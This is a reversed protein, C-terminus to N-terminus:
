RSPGSITCTNSSRSTSCSAERYIASGVPFVNHVLWADPQFSEHIDDLKALSNPNRLMWIAQKWIAPANPGVWDSSFFECTGVESMTSLSDCIAGVASAEGGREQYHNFINLVKM